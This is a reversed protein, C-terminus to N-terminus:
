ELSVPFRNDGSKTFNHIFGNKNILKMHIYKHQPTYAHLHLAKLPWFLAGVGSVPIVPQRILSKSVSNLYEVLGTHATLWQVM